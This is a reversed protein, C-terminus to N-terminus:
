TGASVRWLFAIPDGDPDAVRANLQVISGPAAVGVRVGSADRVVLPDLRPASNAMTFDFRQTPIGTDIRLRQQRDYKEERIRLWYDQGPLVGTLVYQDFNNLAVELQLAGKADLLAVRAFANVNALADFARPTSGDARRVTGYIAVGDNKRLLPIVITGINRYRGAISFAKGICGSGFGDGKWCLEYQGPKKVQTTFRGSLDTISPESDNTTGTERLVVQISPLYVQDTSATSAAIGHGMDVAIAIYGRVVTPNQPPPITCSALGLILAIAAAAAVM